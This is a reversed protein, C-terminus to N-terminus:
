DSLDLHVNAHVVEDNVQVPVQFKEAPMPHTTVGVM